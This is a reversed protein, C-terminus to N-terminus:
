NSTKRADHAKLTDIESRLRSIEAQQVQLQLENASLKTQYDLILRDKERNQDELVNVRKALEALQERDFRREEMHQTQQGMLQALLVEREKLLSQILTNEADSDIKKSAIQAEFNQKRRDILFKVMYGVAGGVTAVLPVVISSLVMVADSFFIM